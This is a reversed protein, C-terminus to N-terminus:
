EAGVETTTAVVDDTTTAVYEEESVFIKDGFRLDIYHFAGTDLHSFSPSDIITRLNNVTEEVSLRTSVKLTGGRALRYTRDIADDIEVDTVYLSLEAELREIFQQVVDWERRELVSQQLTPAIDPVHFRVLANGTLAPAITFAYGTQDLFVCEDTDDCWLAYPIYEDYVVLMSQNDPKSIAVNKVRAITKVQAEIDELPVFWAFRHPVLRMHSGELVRYVIEAVQAHPVTTGGVVTVESITLSEIRSGYWVATVLISLASM